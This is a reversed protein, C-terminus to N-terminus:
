PPTNPLLLTSSQGFLTTSQFRQDELNSFNQLALTKLGCSRSGIGPLGGSVASADFDTHNWTAFSLCLLESRRNAKGCLDDATAMFQEL